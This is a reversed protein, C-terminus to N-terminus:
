RRLREGNEWLNKYFTDTANDIASQAYPVRSGFAKLAHQRFTQHSEKENTILTPLIEGIYDKKCKLAGFYAGDQTRRNPPTRVRAAFLVFPLLLFLNNDHTWCTPASLSTSCGVVLSSGDHPVHLPVVCVYTYM